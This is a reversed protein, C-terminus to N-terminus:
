KKSRLISYNVTITIMVALSLLFLHLFQYDPYELMYDRISNILIYGVMVDVVLLAILSRVSVMTDVGHSFAIVFVLGTVFIVSAINLNVNNGLGVSSGSLLALLLWIVIDKRDLTVMKM